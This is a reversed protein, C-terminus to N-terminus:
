GRGLNIGNKTSGQETSVKGMIFTVASFVKFSRYNLSLKYVFYM